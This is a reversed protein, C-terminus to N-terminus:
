WKRIVREGETLGSLIEVTDDGALGTEVWKVERMNDENLVYVYSGDDATHIASLPICLVNERRDAVVQITGATGVDIGANEPGSEM